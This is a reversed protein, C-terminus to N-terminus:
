PTVVRMRYTEVHAVHRPAVLHIEHISQNDLILRERVWVLDSLSGQDSNNYLLPSHEVFAYRQALKSCPILHGQRPGEFPHSWGSVPCDVKGIKPQMIAAFTNRPAPVWHKHFPRFILPFVDSMACTQRVDGYLAIEQMHTANTTYYGIDISPWGWAYHSLKRSGEVDRSTNKPEILKAYIKDRLKAQGIIIEPALKSMKNWLTQRVKFDVAVDLDDDWPINDHHRFSGVLSGGWIM